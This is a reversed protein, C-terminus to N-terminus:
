AARLQDVLERTKPSQHEKLTQKAVGRYPPPINGMMKTVSNVVEQTKGIVGKVEVAKRRAFVGAIVTALGGGISLILGWPAPLLPSVAKAGAGAAGLEDAWTANGEATGDRIAQLEDRWQKLAADAEAKKKIAAALKPEAEDIVEQLTEALDGSAHELQDKAAAIFSQLQPIREDAEASIEAARGAAEQAFALRQNPSTDCGGFMLVILMGGIIGALALAGSLGRTQM